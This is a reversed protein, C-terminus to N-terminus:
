IFELNMMKGINWMNGIEPTNQIKGENGKCVMQSSKENVFKKM